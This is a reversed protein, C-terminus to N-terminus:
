FVPHFRFYFRVGEDSRAMEFSMVLSEPTKFRVGFGRSYRLGSLNFDARDAFVKGADYLLAFELFSAAEWRYEAALSLQNLDRFRYDRYGRLGQRGGLTRQLYFPVGAGSGAIDMSTLLRLAVVRARSGLQFYQRAEFAYRNFDYAPSNLGDWRGMELALYTGKHPNGPHDRLDLGLKINLRLFDPQSTLGPATSEDFVDQVDSTDDDSGRGIEFRSLGLRLDTRLRRHIRYGFVADFAEEKVEYDSRAGQLSDPGVGFFDERPFGKLRLEGFLSFPRWRPHVEGLRTRWLRYGQTSFVALSEVDLWSDQINPHSYLTGIGMGSDRPLEAGFAPYFRHFNVGLIRQLGESELWILGRKVPNEKEAPPPNRLKDLRQRRWTEARSGTKESVAPQSPQSSQPDQAFAPAFWAVLLLACGVIASKMRDTSVLRKDNGKGSSEQSMGMM